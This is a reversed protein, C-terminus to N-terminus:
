VTLYGKIFGIWGIIIKKFSEFCWIYGECYSM